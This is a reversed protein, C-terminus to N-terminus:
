LHDPFNPFYSLHITAGWRPRIAASLLSSCSLVLSTTRFIRVTRYTSLGAGGRGSLRLSSRPAHCSSCAPGVRRSELHLHCNRHDLAIPRQRFQGLLEVDM